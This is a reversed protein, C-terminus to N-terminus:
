MRDPIEIGLLDLLKTLVDLTIAVLTLWSSQRAADSESLIHCHEYFRSFDTALEYSFEALVNPARLDAARNVVESLRVLRLMLAREQAVTAPLIEGGSLGEQTARRLISKIRVASYQLYPGTKGEFASFRDLDFIYNSTRHNSLDGFKLAAIGVQRAISEREAEPYDAAINAEELRARAGDTVLGILDGLRLVGGERTKFPKGDIGNVTGFGIHEVEVSEPLIGMERAARFVQEFHLGQRADVVYLGLDMGMDAVRMDITALDTTSYLYSGDSRTLLLPPLEKKDDAVAVDVIVAGESTRAVDDALARQVMQELRENVTSEGYWVDFEVGLADFDKRQEAVSVDHFHQWVALYGPRGNQLEFTAVRAREAVDADEAARQTIVPYMDSLDDLTVPSVEPYPGDTAPDYEADFYPLDPQRDQLEVILQGVPMGWDGMHIDGITRHGLFSFLRKVSEGIIAARLHGVHLAKSMNPGGYDVVVTLPDEVAEVGLRDSLGMAATSAALARDTVRINIFGPGAIELSEIMDQDGVSTIIAGALERPNRQATKAAGLAGNCQYDALEPRQSISVAGYDGDLGESEFAESFLQSLEHQLSM